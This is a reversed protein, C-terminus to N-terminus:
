GRTSPTGPFSGFRSYWGEQIVGGFHLDMRGFGGMVRFYINFSLVQLYGTFSVIGSRAYTHDDM